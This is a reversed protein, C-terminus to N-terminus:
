AANEALEYEEIKIKQEETLSGRSEVMAIIESATKKKSQIAMGWKPLNAKFDAEPYKSPTIDREEQVIAGADQFREAEDPDIIGSIGFAYRGAQITAKHRLMRAPWTKWTDTNRKCENMYETVTVPRSTNKRYMM